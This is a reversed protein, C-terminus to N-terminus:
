PCAAGSNGADFDNPTNAPSCTSGSWSATLVSGSGDRFIGGGTASTSVPWNAQNASISATDSLTLTGATWVGGGNSSSVNGTVSTAGILNLTTGSAVHVGGGTGYSINAQVSAGDITAAGYSLAIGGGRSQAVNTDGIQSGDSISLSDLKSWIGGGMGYGDTPSTGTTAENGVIRTGGRITASGGPTFGMGLALGGGNQAHNDDFRTGFVDLPETSAYWIGGGPGSPARNGTIRISADATGVTAQAGVVTLPRSSYIGGGGSAGTALNDHIWATGWIDVRNSDAFIGGGYQATGYGIEVAGADRYTAGSGHIKLPGFSYVNGGATGATNDHLKTGASLELTGDTNNSIGGGLVSAKGHQLTIGSLTVSGGGGITLVSGLGGGDLVAPAGGALQDITVPAGAGVSISFNGVCNGGVSIRQGAVANKFRRQLLGGSGVSPKGGNVAVSCKVTTRGALASSAPISGGVLLLTTFVAALARRTSSRM